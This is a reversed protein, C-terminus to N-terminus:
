IQYCQETYETLFIKLKNSTKPCELLYLKNHFNFSYYDYNQLRHVVGMVGMVPLQFGYEYRLKILEPKSSTQRDTQQNTSYEVYLKTFYIRDCNVSVHKDWDYIAYWKTILKNILEPQSSRDTLRDTQGDGFIQLRHRLECGIKIAQIMIPM